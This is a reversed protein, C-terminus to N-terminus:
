LEAPFEAHRQSEHQGRGQVREEKSAGASWAWGKHTLRLSWLSLSARSISMTTGVAAVQLLLLNQFLRPSELRHSRLSASRKSPSTSCCISTHQKGDVMVGTLHRLDVKLGVFVVPLKAWSVPAVFFVQAAKKSLLVVEVWSAGGHRERQTMKARPLVPIKEDEKSSAKQLKGAIHSPGLVSECSRSVMKKWGGVRKCGAEGWGLEELVVPNGKGM